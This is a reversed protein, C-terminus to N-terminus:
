QTHIFGIQARNMIVDDFPFLKRTVLGKHSSNVYCTVPWFEGFWHWHRKKIQDVGLSIPLSFLRSAPSKHRCRAWHSTMTNVTPTIRWQLYIFILMALFLCAQLYVKRIMWEQTKCPSAQVFHWPILYKTSHPVNLFTEPQFHSHTSIYLNWIIMTSITLQSTSIELNISAMVNIMSLYKKYKFDLVLKIIITVTSM